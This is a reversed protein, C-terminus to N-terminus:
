IRHEGNTAYRIALADLTDEWKMRGADGFHIDLAFAAHTTGLQIVQAATFALLCHGYLLFDRLVRSYSLDTKSLALSLNRARKRNLEHAAREFVFISQAQETMTSYGSDIFSPAAWKRTGDDDCGHYKRLFKAM